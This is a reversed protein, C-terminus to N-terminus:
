TRKAAARTVRQDLLVRASTTECTLAFFVGSTVQAIGTLWLLLALSGTRRLMVAGLATTGVGPLNAFLNGVSSILATDSGGVEYYNQFCLCHILPRRKFFRRPVHLPQKHSLSVQNWTMGNFSMGIQVLVSAVVAQLPSKSVGFLISASGTWCHAAFCVRRRIQQTTIGAAIMRMEVAAVVWNIFFSAVGPVALYSGTQVMSCGLDAYITPSWQSLTYMVMNSTMHSFMCTNVATVKFVNWNYTEETM